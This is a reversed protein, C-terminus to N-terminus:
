DLRNQYLHSIGMRQCFEDALSRSTSVAWDACGHGLCRRPFFEMGEQQYWPNEAFRGRLRDELDSLYDRETGTRGLYKYHTLENRLDILTKVSQYPDRGREFKQKGAGELVLQYRALTPNKKVEEISDGLSENILADLFAVCLFIAGTVYAIHEDIVDQSPQSTGHEAEIRAIARAFLKASSLYSATMGRRVTATVSGSIGLSSSVTLAIKRSKSGCSACAARSEVPTTVPEDLTRGCEGCTVTQAGGISKRPTTM